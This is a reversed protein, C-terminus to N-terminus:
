RERNEQQGTAKSSLWLSETSSLHQSLFLRCRTWSARRSADERQQPSPTDITYVGTRPLRPPWRFRYRAAFRLRVKTAVYQTLRVLRLRQYDDGNAM